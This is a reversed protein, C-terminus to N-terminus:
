YLGDLLTMIMISSFLNKNGIDKQKTNGEVQNLHHRINKIAIGIQNEVTKINIDMISAIEKHSLQEKRSLFL